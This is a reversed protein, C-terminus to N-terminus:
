LLIVGSYTLSRRACSCPGVFPATGDRAIAGLLPSRDAGPCLGCDGCGGRGVMATTHGVLLRGAMFRGHVPLLCPRCSAGLAPLLAGEPGRPLQCPLEAAACLIFPIEKELLLSPPLPAQINCGSPARAACGPPGEVLGSPLPAHVTSSPPPYPSTCACGVNM